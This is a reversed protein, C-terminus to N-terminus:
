PALPEPAFVQAPAVLQDQAAVLLLERSGADATAKLVAYTASAAASLAEAASGTRQRHVYFLAAIADGAGNVSLDLKPTRVRWMDGGEGVVLDVAGTPTDELQVSTVLVTRPGREHVAAIARALDGATRSVIGSVYDLEFHNPTVVDAKPLAQDRM